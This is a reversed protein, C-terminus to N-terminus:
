EYLHVNGGETIVSRVRVSQGWPTKFPPSDYVADVQFGLLFDQTFSDPNAQMMQLAEAQTTFADDAPLCVVAEVPRMDHTFNRYVVDVRRELELDELAPPPVDHEWNASLAQQNWHFVKGGDGPQDQPSLLMLDPGIGFAEEVYFGQIGDPNASAPVELDFVEGFPFDADNCGSWEYRVGGSELEVLDLAISRHGSHLWVVDNGEFVGALNWNEDQDMPDGGESGGGPEGDGPDGQEEPELDTYVCEGVNQPYVVQVPSPGEPAGWGDEGKNTFALQIQCRGVQQGWGNRQLAIDFSLDMEPGTWPEDLDVPWAAAADSETHIQNEICAALALLLM